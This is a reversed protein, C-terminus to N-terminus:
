TVWGRALNVAVSAVEVGVLSLPALLKANSDCKLLIQNLKRNVIELALFRLQLLLSVREEM